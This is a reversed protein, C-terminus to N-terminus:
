ENKPKSKNKQRNKVKTQIRMTTTTTAPAPTPTSEMEADLEDLMLSSSQLPDLNEINTILQQKKNRPNDAMMMIDDNNNNNNNNLNNQDITRILYSFSQESAMNIIAFLKGLFNETMILSNPDNQFMYVGSVTIMDRLFTQMRAGEYYCIVVTTLIVSSIFLTLFTCTSCSCCM